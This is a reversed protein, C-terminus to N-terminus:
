DKDAAASLVARALHRYENRIAEDLSGWVIRYEPETCGHEIEFLARAGRDIQEFTPETM